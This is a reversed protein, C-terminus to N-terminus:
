MKGKTRVNLEVEGAEALVMVEWSEREMEEVMERVAVGQLSILSLEPISLKPVIVGEGLPM